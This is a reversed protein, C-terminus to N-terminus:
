SLHARALALAHATAHDVSETLTHDDDVIDLEVAGPAASVASRVIAEPVVDDNRGHLVYTAVKIPPVPPHSLADEYLTYGVPHLGGYAYHEVEIRGAARWAAIAEAGHRHELRAAFDFAPAMLVMAKVRQDQQALITAAYGGLSSGVILTRDFLARTARKLIRSVTLGEFDGENLDPVRVVWGAKELPGIMARAKNSSPGSAFGHLYLIGHAVARTPLRVPRFLGSALTSQSETLRTHLDVLDFSLVSSRADAARKVNGLAKNLLKQTGAANNQQEYKYRAAATQILAQLVERRPSESSQWADEWIEHAEFARGEHYEVLGRNVVNYLETENM